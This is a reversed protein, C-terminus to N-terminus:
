VAAVEARYGKWDLSQWEGDRKWRLAPLDAWKKAAEGFITCVTKGSVAADIDADEFIIFPANGGLEMSTNVVTEAAERLLIRGVETSGTFSLKRVRPDNLMAAPFHQYNDHYTHLGLGLQKLNNKCQIRYAAARIRQIAPFLLVLVAGIIAIVILLEVLTLGRRMDARVTLCKRM